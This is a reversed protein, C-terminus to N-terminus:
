GELSLPSRYVAHKILSIEQNLNKNLKNYLIIIEKRTVSDYRHACVPEPSLGRRGDSNCKKKKKKFFRM